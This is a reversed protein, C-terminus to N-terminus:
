LTMEDVLYSILHQRFSTFSSSECVRDNNGISEGYKPLSMKISSEEVRIDRIRENIDIVEISVSVRVDHM